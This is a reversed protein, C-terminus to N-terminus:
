YEIEIVTKEDEHHPVKVQHVELRIEGERDGRIFGATALSDLLDKTSGYKADVDLLHKWRYLTFRVIPCRAGQAERCCAGELAPPQEKPKSDPLQADTNNENTKDAIKNLADKVQKWSTLKAANAPQNIKHEPSLIVCGGDPRKDPQKLTPNPHLMQHRMADQANM